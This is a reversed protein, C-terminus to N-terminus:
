MKPANRTNVPMRMSMCRLSCMSMDFDFVRFSKRRKTGVVSSYSPCFNKVRRLPTRMAVGSSAARTTTSTVSMM